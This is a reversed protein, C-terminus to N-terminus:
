MSTIDQLIKFSSDNSLMECKSCSNTFFFSYYITMSGVIYLLMFLFKPSIVSDSTCKDTDSSFSERFLSIGGVQFSEM